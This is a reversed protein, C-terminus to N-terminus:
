YRQSSRQVADLNQVVFRSMYESDNPDDIAGNESIYIPLKLEDQVWKLLGEMRDPQNVGEVFTLPNVNLLPSFDPMFSSPAGEVTVGFYYNVGIWDMRGTLREQRVSTGDLNEDLEGLATARLFAKNWLYSINNAAEEDAIDDPRM